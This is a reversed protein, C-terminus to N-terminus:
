DYTISNIENVKNIRNKELKNLKNQLEIKAQILKDVYQKNILFYILYIDSYNATCLLSCLGQKISIIDFQLNHLESELNEQQKFHIALYKRYEIIRLKTDLLTFRENNNLNIKNELIIIDKLWKNEIELSNDNNLRDFLQYEILLKHKVNTLENILNNNNNEYYEVILVWYRKVLIQYM